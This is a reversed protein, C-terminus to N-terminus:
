NGLLQVFLDNDHPTAHVLQEDHLRELIGRFADRTREPDLKLAPMAKVYGKALAIDTTGMMWALQAMIFQRVDSEDLIPGPPPTLDGASIEEETLLHRLLPHARYRDRRHHSAVVEDRSVPRITGRPVEVELDGVRALNVVGELADLLAYQAFDLKIHQFKEDGLKKLDKHYAAGQVGVKLPRREHDTVLLRHDPAPKCELLRGLATTASRGTNTIFLIGTTVEHGDPERRERVLLDYPPLKGGKKKMREIGQFTYTDQYGRCQELLAEVLSALNGADPPLSGPQLRHLEIQEHIKRDIKEDIVDLHNASPLPDPGPGLDTGTGPHTDPWAALWPQGGLRELAAQQDEWGDRAWTLVDRARFEVGDALQEQLWREGLPFLADELVQRRVPDLHMFPDLFRELRAELIKRADPPKIRRLDVKYEAVRDWAASPIKGSQHYEDLTSKVGSVIALLNPAHDILVHLFRALAILKDDDLNDVQDICLVFPQERVLALRCLAIFVQEVQQDDCLEASEEGKPDLGLARAVEADIEEGALWAVASEAVYARKPDVQQLPHAHRYFQFLVEYVDSDVSARDLFARFAKGGGKLTMESPAAGADKLAFRVAHDVLRFLPTEHLAQRRGGTLVSIVCKLMYRPLRDPDALINHLYVYCARARDRDAKENAWRFLRSLLHSKGVGAEGLLAVGVGRTKRLATEARATLKDFERAHIVAVDVDFHSPESVRAGAFPEQDRVADFFAELNPSMTLGRSCEIEVSSM